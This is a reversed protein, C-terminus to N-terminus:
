THTHGRERTHTNGHGHTFQKMMAIYVIEDGYADSVVENTITCVSKLVSTGSCFLTKLSHFGAFFIGLYELLIMNQM